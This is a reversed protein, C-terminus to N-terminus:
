KEELKEELELEFMALLGTVRKRLNENAATRDIVGENQATEVFNRLLSALAGYCCVYSSMFRGAQEDISTEGNALQCQAAKKCYDTMFERLAFGAYLGQEEPCIEDPPVYEFKLAYNDDHSIVFGFEGRARNIKQENM